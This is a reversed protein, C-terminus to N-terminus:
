YVERTYRVTVVIVRADASLRKVGLSFDRSVKFVSIGSSLNRLNTIKNRLSFLFLGVM